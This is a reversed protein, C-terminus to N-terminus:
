GRGVEAEDAACGTWHMNGGLGLTVKGCHKCQYRCGYQGRENIWFTDSYNKFGSQKYVKRSM